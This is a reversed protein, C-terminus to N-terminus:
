RASTWTGDADARPLRFIPSDWRAKGVKVAFRRIGEEVFGFKRYIRIAVENFAYVNLEIREFTPDAFITRIIQQLFPVALEQGIASIASAVSVSAPM